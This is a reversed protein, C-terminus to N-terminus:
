KKYSMWWTRFPIRCGLVWMSCTTGGRTKHISIEIARCIDDIYVYDRKPTLDQLTIAEENGLTQKIIFPILFKESQGPGYVNFLRLVSIDMAYYECFFECLEEAMYKSQAYPSNPRVKACEEIPIREPQGYIYASVYTMGIGLERCFEIMRLTGLVNVTLFREPERWSDPVYTKGALHVVHDIGEKKWEKGDHEKLVDFEQSSLSKVEFGQESLYKTLNRGIFGRGGTILVKQIMNGEGRRFCM